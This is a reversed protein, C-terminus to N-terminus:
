EFTIKERNDEIVRTGIGQVALLDSLQTFEGHQERYEVIAQAKAPGVGVLIEALQTQNANNVDVQEGPVAHAWLSLCWTLILFSQMLQKM